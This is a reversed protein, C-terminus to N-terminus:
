IQKAMEVAHGLYARPTLSLLMSKHEQPIDLESIFGHLAERDIGQGRTLAKLQEYPNKLGYRRMVTQVAEGLVEWAGDIDEDIRSENLKLKGLGKTLATQAILTHGLAQGWNRLVTSDTLDRQFRSIPLKDAFHGLLM